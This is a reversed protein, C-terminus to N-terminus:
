LVAEQTTQMTLRKIQEFPVITLERKGERVREFAIWPLPWPLISWAKIMDGAMSFIYWTDCSDPAFLVGLDLMLPHDKPVGRGMIFFEPTSFLFGHRFHWDCYWKFSQEQPHAAYQAAM